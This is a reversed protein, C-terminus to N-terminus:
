IVNQKLAQMVIIVLLYQILTKKSKIKYLGAGIMM